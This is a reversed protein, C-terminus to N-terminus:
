AASFMGQRTQKPTIKPGKEIANKQGKWKHKTQLIKQKREDLAKELMGSLAQRPNNEVHRVSQNLDQWENEYKNKQSEVLELWENKYKNRQSEM